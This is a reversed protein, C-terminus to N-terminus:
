SWDQNSKPQNAMPMFRNSFADLENCDVSYGRSVYKVIRKLTSGPQQVKDVNLTIHKNKVDDIVNDCMVVREGDFAIQCVSIDFTDIIESAKDKYVFSVLQITKRIDQGKHEIIFDYTQSFSTDKTLIAYEKMLANCANFQVANAFFLDIDTDLPQGLFTRLISGGAIWPGKPNVVLGIAELCDTIYYLECDLPNSVGNQELLQKFNYVKM